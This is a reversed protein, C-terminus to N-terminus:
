ISYEGTLNEILTETENALKWWDTNWHELSQAFFTLGWFCDRQQCVYRLTPCLHISLNDSVRAQKKFVRPVQTVIVNKM